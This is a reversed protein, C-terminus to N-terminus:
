KWLKGQNADKACHEAALLMLEQVKNVVNPVGQGFADQTLEYTQGNTKAILKLADEGAIILFAPSNLFM